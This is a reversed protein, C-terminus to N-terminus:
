APTRNVRDRCLVGSSMSPSMSARAASVLRSTIGAGGSRAQACGMGGFSIVGVGGGGGMMRSGLVDAGGGSAHPAPEFPFRLRGGPLQDADGTKRSVRRPFQS